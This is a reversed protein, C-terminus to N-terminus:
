YRARIWSATSLITGNYTVEVNVQIFDSDANDAMATQFDDPDVKNVTVKQTYNNFITLATGAADIPPSFVTGDGDGDFDDVDDYDSPTSEEAGVTAVQDDATGPEVVPFQATRERIQELLFEATSLRAGADNVMTHAGNAGVLAAVALGILVTAIMVEILTFGQAVNASRM